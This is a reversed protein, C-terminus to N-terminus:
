GKRRYSKKVGQRYRWYARYTILLLILLLASTAILLWGPVYYFTKKLVLVESGSGHTVSATITYQGIQDINKLPNKFIRSSSPLVTGRPNTSNLQYTYVSKSGFMKTVEVTGFPKAFGNGLNRVEVGVETPKRFFITGEHKGNYIHLDSLQVQEKLNGPVTILIITGVSASLAVEGEKPAVAGAPVAKYRVIGFYAGPPTDQPIQLSLTVKKQESKALPLDELGFIFRRISNPSVKQPDTIIQPSGSLDDSKFDSIFAQATINNITINKLTITIKDAQGPKLTFESLTPSISLGSATPGTQATASTIGLLLLMVVFAAALRRLQYM